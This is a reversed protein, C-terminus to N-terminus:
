SETAGRQGSNEQAGDDAPLVWCNLSFIWTCFQRSGGNDDHMARVSASRCVDQGAVERLDTRFPRVFHPLTQRNRPWNTDSRFAAVSYQLEYFMIRSRDSVPFQVVCFSFPRDTAETCFRAPLKTAGLGALAVAAISEKLSTNAFSARVGITSGGAVALSAYGIDPRVKRRMGFSPESGSCRRASRFKM